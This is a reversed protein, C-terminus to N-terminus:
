PRPTNPTQNTRYMRSFSELGGAGRQAHITSIGIPATPMTTM